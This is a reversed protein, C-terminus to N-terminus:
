SYSNRLRRIDAVDGTVTIQDGERLVTHSEPVIPQDNRKILAVISPYLDLEEVARGIFDATKEQASLVLSLYREPNMLAKKLTQEDGATRWVDLFREEGVRGAIHALTRLHQGPNDEPSVLFILAYIPENPDFFV